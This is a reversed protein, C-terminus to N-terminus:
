VLNFTLHGNGDDTISLTAALSTSNVNISKIQSFNSLGAGSRSTNTYVMDYTGGAVSSVTCDLQVQSNGNVAYANVGGGISSVSSSYADGSIALIYVPNGGNNFVTPVASNGPFGQVDTVGMATTSITVHSFVGDQVIDIGTGAVLTKLQLNGTAPTTTTGGGTRWILSMGSNSIDAYSTVGGPNGLVTLDISTGSDAVNITNNSSQLTKIQATPPGSAFILSSGPGGASLVTTGGGGTSAITLATSGNATITINSGANLGKISPTPASGDSVLSNTGGASVISTVTGGSGSAAISVYHDTETLTVGSGARLRKLVFDISTSDISKLTVGTTADNNFYPFQTNFIAFSM